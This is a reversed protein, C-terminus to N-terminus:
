GNVIESVEFGEEAATASRRRIMDAEVTGRYEEGIQALVEAFAEANQREAGSTARIHDLIDSKFLEYSHDFEGAARSYAAAFGTQDAYFRLEAFLKTLDVSTNVADPSPAVSTDPVRPIRVGYGGTKKVPLAKLILGPMAEVFAGMQQAVADRTTKFRQGWGENRHLGVSRLVGGTIQVFLNLNELLEGADVDEPHLGVLSIGIVDVDDLLLENVAAQDEPAISLDDYDQELKSILTLIEWPRAMRGMLVLLAYQSYKPKESRFRQYIGYFAEADGENFGLLPREFRSQIEDIWDTVELCMAMDRLDAVISAGGLQHCFAEFAADSQIVKALEKQMIQGAAVQLERVPARAADLKDEAILASIELEIGALEESLIGTKLWTWMPRLSWRGIRGIQKRRDPLANILDEFAVCFLRELTPTRSYNASERLAPRMADMLTEHPLDTGGGLRDLEVASALKELDHERIQGLFTELKDKKRADM